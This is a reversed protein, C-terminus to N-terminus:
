SCSVQIDQKILHEAIAKAIHSNCKNSEYLFQGIPNVELFYYTGQIGRVLDLAGMTLHQSQMLVNIKKLIIKPLEYPVTHMNGYEKLQKRDDIKNYQNSLIASAFCTGELYFVRIEYNVAIKEQFLTPMFNVPIEEIKEKHISKVFSFYTCNEATYYGRSRDSFQKIIVKKTDTKGLFKRVAERATLIKSQPVELGAEIASNLMSLKNVHISPLPSYWKKDKLSEYIYMTLMEAETHLEGNIQKAFLHENESFVKKRQMYHRYWVISVEENLCHGKYYVKQTDIDVRLANENSYLAGITLKLFNAKYYILWDIVPNTGQEYTDSGLILIM